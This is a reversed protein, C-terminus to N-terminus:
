PRTPSSPRSGVWGLIALGLYVCTLMTTFVAVRPLIAM